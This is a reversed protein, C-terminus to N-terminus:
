ILANERASLPPVPDSAPNFREVDGPLPEVARTQDFWVWQDVQRPLVVDQYHSALESEPRYIVGIMRELQGRALATVAPAAREARFDVLFRPLGTRHCLREMSDPHSPRVSKVTMPGGWETAAAVTGRDTGFGVLVAEDGWTERCLQGLNYEGRAAMETARADGVHSNHAWVVARAGPRADLVARLTEAMHSDRLNWSAAAGYYMARYYREAAAVLRANQVADLLADDDVALRRSLIDQLVQLVPGECRRFGETLAARGYTAPDRQWPELCGYRERAVRAAAPDHRDLYSLVAEVSATQSYLDLGCCRVQQDPARGANLRRLREVFDAFATNRWMWTPFRAFPKPAGPASSGFVPAATLGRVEGDVAAMDPWDAEFAVIEFGHRTVLRETIAARARYFEDSGHTAEGLLVVRAEGLRDFAAAFAPDDIEALPEAAAALAAVAPDAASMPRAPLHQSPDPEPLGEILPVFRVAEGREEAIEGAANRRIVTLHQGRSPSGVPMVLRGGRALQEVLPQPVETAGAAVLIADFPAHHRWGGTGDGTMVQINRYGLDAFRERAQDALAAHREITFVEAALHALVAAAYGSGTGVELVRDNPGVAALAAMLAVIYPQSITQGEDIPLASDDYAFEALDRPVFAERPVARLAAQLRPDSLGRRVIQRDIMANRLKTQDRGGRSTKARVVSM